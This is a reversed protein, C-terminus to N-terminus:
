ARVQLDFYVPTAAPQLTSVGVVRFATGGVVVQDGVTPTVALDKAAVYIRRDGVKIVSGDRDRVSYDDVVAICAYDTTTSTGPNLGAGPTTRRILAAAGFRTILRLATAQARAYNFATM